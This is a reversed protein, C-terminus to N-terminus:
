LALTCFIRELVFVIILVMIEALGFGALGGPLPPLARRLPVVVPDTVAVTLDRVGATPSGSGIPFFSLVMRLLFVFQFGLLFVCIFWM